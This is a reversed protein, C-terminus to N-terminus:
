DRPRSMKAAGRPSSGTWRKFARSFAAPDSYGLLSATQSVGKNGGLYHLALSHRLEDLLQEFTVGEAKLKRFLTQRSLGLKRAIANVSVDGAHLVPTLTEVVRARISQSDNLRALLTEAHEKLIASVYGSSPPLQYNALMAEDIRLANKDSGFSVPMGFVREYEYRYLPEPHTFEVAKFFKVEGLGRRTSCVMRAFTSESLEPFDNPNRRADVILLRGATRELQFRDGNGVCDLEVGLRAYRNVQAFADDISDAGSVICGINIESVDVAEGFHLALAPDNLLQQGARMLRVYRSFPIRNARDSLDDRDIGSREELTKRSAGKAVVLGMLAAASSAAITLERM